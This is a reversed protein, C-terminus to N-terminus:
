SFYFQILANRVHFLKNSPLIVKQTDTLCSKIVTARSPTTIVAMTVTESIELFLILIGEKAM